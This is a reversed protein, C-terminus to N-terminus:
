KNKAYFIVDGANCMWKGNQVESKKEMRIKGDAVLAELRTRGGVIKAAMNKGFCLNAKYMIICLQTLSVPTHM